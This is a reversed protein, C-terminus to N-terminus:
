LQIIFASEAQHKMINAMTLKKFFWVSPDIVPHYPTNARKEAVSRFSIKYMVHCHMVYLVIHRIVAAACQRVFSVAKTLENKIIEFKNEQAESISEHIQKVALAFFHVQTHRITFKCKEGKTYDHTKHVQLGRQPYKDNRKKDCPENHHDTVPCLMSKDIFFIRFIMEGTGHITDVCTIIVGAPIIAIM